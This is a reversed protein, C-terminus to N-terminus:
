GGQIIETLQKHAIINKKSLPNQAFDVHVTKIGYTKCDEEHGDNDADDM